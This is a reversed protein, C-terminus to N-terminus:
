KAEIWTMTHIFTKADSEDDRKYTETMKTIYGDNDYECVYVSTYPSFSMGMITQEVSEKVPAQCTRMGGLEPHAVFLIGSGIRHPILPCYGKALSSSEYEFRQKSGLMFNSNQMYTLKDDEWEMSMEYYTRYTEVLRNSSDYTYTHKEGFLYDESQEKALGNELTITTNEIWDASKTVTVDISNANWTFKYVSFNTNSGDDIQQQASELHGNEDYRFTMTTKTSLNQTTFRLLKKEVAKEDDIKSCSTFNVGMLISILAMWVIRMKRIKRM